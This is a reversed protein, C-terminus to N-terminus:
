RRRTPAQAADDVRREDRATAKAAYREMGILWSWATGRSWNCQDTDFGWEALKCLFRVSGYELSYPIKKQDLVAIVQSVRRRFERTDKSVRTRSPRIISVTDIRRRDTDTLQGSPM